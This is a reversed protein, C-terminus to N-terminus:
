YRNGLEDFLFKFVVIEYTFVEGRQTIIFDELVISFLPNLINYQLIKLHVLVNIILVATKPILQLAVARGGYEIKSWEHKSILRSNSVQQFCCQSKM